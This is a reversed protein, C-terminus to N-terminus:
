PWGRTWALPVGVAGRLCPSLRLPHLQDRYPLLSVVNVAALAVALILDQIREQRRQPLAALRVALKQPFGAIRAALRKVVRHYPRVGRRRIARGSSGAAGGLPPVPRPRGGGRGRAGPAGGVGGAGGGGGE